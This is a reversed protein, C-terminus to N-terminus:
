GSPIEAPWDFAVEMSGRGPRTVASPHSYVAPATAPSNAPPETRPSPRWVRAIVLSIGISSIVFFAGGDTPAIIRNKSLASTSSIACIDSHENVIM